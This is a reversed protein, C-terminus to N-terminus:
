PRRRELQENAAEETDFIDRPDRTTQFSDDVARVWHETFSVKREWTTVEVVKGDEIVYAV